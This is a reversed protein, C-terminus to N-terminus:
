GGINASVFWYHFLLLIGTGIISTLSFLRKFLPFMFGVVFFTLVALYGLTPAYVATESTIDTSLIIGDPLKIFTYVASVIYIAFVIRGLNALIWSFAWKGRRTLYGAFSPGAVPAESRRGSIEGGEQRRFYMTDLFDTILKIDRSLQTRAELLTKKVSAEFPDHGLTLFAYMSNGKFYFAVPVNVARELYYIGEIMQPTLAAMADLPDRAFVRFRQGFEALETEVSQWEPGPVRAGGFDRSVVRTEGRFADAFNFKMVRGRFVDRSREVERTHGNDDEESETWVEQVTLDSQSFRTGKYSAEILDSGGIRDIHDFLDLGAIEGGSFRENPKYQLNDFVKSLEATVFDRKFGENYRKKLAGSLAALPVFVVAGAFLSLYEGGGAAIAAIIAALGLVASMIGVFRAKYRTMELKIAAADSRAARISKIERNM